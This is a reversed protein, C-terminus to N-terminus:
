RDPLWYDLLNHLRRDAYESASQVANFASSFDFYLNECHQRIQGASFSSTSTSLQYIICDDVAVQPHYAFQLPGLCTSVRPRPHALVLRELVKMIHPCCTKLEQPCISIVRFLAPHWGCCQFRRQVWVLTLSTRYSAVCSTLLPRWSEWSKWNGRCARWYSQGRGWLSEKEQEAAGEPRLHDLCSQQPFM